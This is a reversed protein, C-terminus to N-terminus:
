FMVVFPIFPLIIVSIPFFTNTIGGVLPNYDSMNKLKIINMRKVADLNGWLFSYRNIFMTVLFTMLM